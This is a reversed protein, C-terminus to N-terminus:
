RAEWKRRQANYQLLRVRATPGYVRLCWVGGGGDTLYVSGPTSTGIPSFSCITSRNFQVPEDDPQIDDGDPDVIPVPPLSIRAINQHQALRVPGAVLRDVNKRIDDSRIGDGDGDNYTAYLWEAGDRTFKIGVNRARAIAQARASRFIGRLEDAAARVANRRNMSVFAPVGIAAFMGVLAVICMAEGLTQGRQNM